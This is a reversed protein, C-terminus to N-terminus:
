ANLQALLEDFRRQSAIRALEKSKDDEYYFREAIGRPEDGIFLLVKFPEYDECDTNYLVISDVKSAPYITPAYEDDSNGFKIFKM